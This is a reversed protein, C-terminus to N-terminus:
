RRLPLPAPPQPLDISNSACTQTCPLGALKMKESNAHGRPPMALHMKARRIQCSGMAGNADSSLNGTPPGQFKQVIGAVGFRKRKLARAAQQALVGLPGRSSEPHARRWSGPVIKLRRLARTSSFSAFAPFERCRSIAAGDRGATRM